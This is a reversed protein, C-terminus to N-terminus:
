DVSNSKRNKKEIKTYHKANMVIVIDIREKIDDYSYITHNFGIKEGCRRTVIWFM